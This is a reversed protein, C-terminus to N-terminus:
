ASEGTNPLLNRHFYDPDDFKYNCYTELADYVPGISLLTKDQQVAFMLGEYLSDARRRWRYYEAELMEPNMNGRETTM